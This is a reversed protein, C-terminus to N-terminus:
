SIPGIGYSGMIVSEPKGTQNLFSLGLGDSFRTGLNFINGVEISKKSELKSKETESIIEENIAEQGDIYITDEGAYVRGWYGKDVPRNGEEGRVAGKFGVAEDTGRLGIFTGGNVAKCARDDSRFLM